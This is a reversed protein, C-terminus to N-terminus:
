CGLVLALCSLRAAPTEETTRSCLEAKRYSRQNSGFAGLAARGCRSGREPPPWAPLGLATGRAHEPILAEDLELCDEFEPRIKEDLCHSDSRKIAGMGQRVSSQLASENRLVRRLTDCHTENGM